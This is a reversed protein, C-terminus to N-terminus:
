PRAKLSSVLFHGVFQWPFRQTFWFLGGFFPSCFLSHFHDVSCRRRPFSFSSGGRGAAGIRTFMRRSEDIVDADVFVDPGAGARQKPM